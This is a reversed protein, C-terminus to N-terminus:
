KPVRLTIVPAGSDKNHPALEPKVGLIEDFVLADSELKLLSRAFETEIKLYARVIAGAAICRMEAVRPRMISKQRTSAEAFLALFSFGDKTAVASVAKLAFLVNPSACDLKRVQKLKHHKGRVELRRRLQVAIETNDPSLVGFYLLNYSEFESARAPKPLNPYVEGLLQSQCSLYFALSDSLLAADAASEYILASLSPNLNSSATASMTLIRYQGLVEEWAEADHKGEELASAASLSENLTEKLAGPNNVLADSPKRM